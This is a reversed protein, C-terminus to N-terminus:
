GQFYGNQKYLEELFEHREVADEFSCNVEGNALGKYLRGVNRAAFGGFTGGDAADFEDKPIEVEVVSDSEFAHLEIKMDPYGIQLFTGAATLRIEGTEGYIRWDLGPAGKFPKGGRLTMSVPVGTSLTGTVFITDDATKPVNEKVVNGEGDVLNIHTRQSQLLGHPDKWGYGLVYQLYDVAHGFHITVLNGGVEKDGIYKVGETTTPGGAGAQGAWTSSLVKGIKGSEILSKIKNVVPAQRAQLGVIATKVRGENKLKLLERAEAASKGLPWEVFVNKGAKLSPAITPLHRDVRVSCVVLEVNPDKAIGSEVNIVHNQRKSPSPSSVKLIEM